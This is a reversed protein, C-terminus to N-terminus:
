IMREHMMKDLCNASAPSFPVYAHFCGDFVNIQGHRWAKVKEVGPKEVVFRIAQVWAAFRDLMQWGSMCPRPISQVWRDFREFSDLSRHLASIFDPFSQHHIYGNGARSRPPGPDSFHPSLLVLPPSFEGHRSPSLVNADFTLEPSSTPELM